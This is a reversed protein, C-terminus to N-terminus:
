KWESDNPFLNVYRVGKRPEAMMESVLDKWKRYHETERHKLQDDPTRYVENLIFCNPDEIEQLIDFRVIGPEQISNRGNELTAEIFQKRFDPKVKVHVLVIHM